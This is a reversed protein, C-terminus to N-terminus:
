SLVADPSTLEIRRAVRAPASLATILPDSTAPPDSIPVSSFLAATLTAQPSVATNMDSQIQAATLAVKYIRVEDILGSFYEGWISNGGIRLPSNSTTMAGGVAKSGALAGNVYIRMTTGDYTTAVHTWANLPLASAAAASYDTSNRNIYGAPPRNTNDSAYLSYALGGTAGSGREKLVATTWGSLATPKLWAEITMGTTLDLSNSDAVTVWNSTGNFSLASGYKGATTWTAGNITGANGTGSADGLTAGAGEEFGYAAVLGSTSPNSVTISV